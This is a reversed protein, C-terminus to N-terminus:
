QKFGPSMGLLAPRWVDELWAAVREDIQDPPAIRDAAYRYLVARIQIVVLEVRRRVEPMTDVAHWSERSSHGRDTQNGFFYVELLRGGAPDRRTHAYSYADGLMHLNHGLVFANRRQLALRYFRAGTEESRAVVSADTEDSTARMFHYHSREAAARRQLMAGAVDATREDIGLMSQLMMPAHKYAAALAFRLDRRMQVRFREDTIYPAYPHPVQELVDRRYAAGDLEDATPSDNWTTGAVLDRVEQDTFLANLKADGTFALMVTYQHVLGLGGVCLAIFSEMPSTPETISFCIQQQHQRVAEGGSQACAACFATVQCQPCRQAGIRGCAHCTLPASQM